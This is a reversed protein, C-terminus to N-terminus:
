SKNELTFIVLKKKKEYSLIKQMKCFFKDVGIGDTRIPFKLIRDQVKM